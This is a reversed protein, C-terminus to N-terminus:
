CNVTLLETLLEAAVSIKSFTFIKSLHKLPLISLSISFKTSVTPSVIWFAIRVASSLIKVELILNAFLEIFADELRSAVLTVVLESYPSVYPNSYKQFRKQVFEYVVHTRYSHHSEVYYELRLLHITPGLLVNRRAIVCEACIKESIWMLVM